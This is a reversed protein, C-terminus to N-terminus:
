SKPMRRKRRREPIEVEQGPTGWGEGRKRLTPPVSATVVDSKKGLFVFGKTLKPELQRGGVRRLFRSPHPVRPMPLCVTTTGRQAVSNSELALPALPSGERCGVQARHFERRWQARAAHALHIAGAVRAEVADDGDLTRGSWRASRAVQALAELAFGFAMELRFWGCMQVEVVDAVLVADVKQDHLIEFALRQRLPERFARQREILHECYAMSIASASSLACRWPMTWRSRFGPLMMSVFLPALSSSKPRAFSM